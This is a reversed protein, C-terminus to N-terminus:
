PVVIATRHRISWVGVGLPVLELVCVCVGGGCGGQRLRASDSRALGVKYTSNVKALGVKTSDKIAGLAKRLGQQSAM